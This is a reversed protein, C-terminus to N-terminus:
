GDSEFLRNANQANITKLCNKIGGNDMIEQDVIIYATYTATEGVKLNGDGSGQDSVIHIPVPPTSNGNVIEKIQGNPDLISTIDDGLITINTLNASGDNYVEVTWSWIEGVVPEGQYWNPDEGPQPFPPDLREAPVDAVKTVSLSTITDDINTVNPDRLSDGDTNGDKNDGNSSYDLENATQGQSDAVAKVYFKVNGSTVSSGIDYSATYKATEGASLTGDASGGTNEFVLPIVNETYSTEGFDQFYTTLALNSIPASSTNTVNVTYEITDGGTVLGVYNEDDENFDNDIVNSYSIVELSSSDSSSNSFQFANGMGNHYLCFYYLETIPSDVPVTIDQYDSHMAVGTFATAFSYEAATGFRIPHTNSASTHDIGSFRYTKGKEITIVPNEEGNILFKNQGSVNVVSVTFTQEISQAFLTFSFLFFFLISILFHLLTTIGTTLVSHHPKLLKLLTVKQTSNIQNRM